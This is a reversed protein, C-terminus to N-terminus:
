RHRRNIRGSLDYNIAFPCYLNGSALQVGKGKSSVLYSVRKVSFGHGNNADCVDRNFGGPDAEKYDLLVNAVPGCSEQGDLLIVNCKATDAKSDASMQTFAAFCFVAWLFIRPRASEFFGLNM